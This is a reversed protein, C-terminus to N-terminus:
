GHRKATGGANIFKWRMFKAKAGSRPNWGLGVACESGFCGVGHLGGSVKYNQTSSVARM